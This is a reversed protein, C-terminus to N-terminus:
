EIGQISNGKLSFFNLATLYFDLIDKFFLGLVYGIRENANLLPTFKNFTPLAPGLCKMVDLIADFCKTVNSSSQLLIKISGWILALIDPKVQVFVEIVGAYEQLRELYPQIKQLGRLRREHGQEVQLKATYAWIDDVTCAKQLESKNKKDKLEGLFESKAKVFIDQITSTAHSAM